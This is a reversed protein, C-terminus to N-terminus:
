FVLLSRSCLGVWSLLSFLLFGHISSLVTLIRFRTLRSFSLFICDTDKQQKEALFASFM